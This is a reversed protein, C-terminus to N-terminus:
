RRLKLRWGTKEERLHMDSQALNSALQEVSGAYAMSVIAGKSTLVHIDLSKVFTAAELRELMSLWEGMREFDAAVTFTVQDGIEVVATQKWEKAFASLIDEVAEGALAAHEKRRGKYNRVFLRSGAASYQYVFVDLRGAQTALAHAIVVADVNYKKALAAMSQTDSLLVDEVDLMAQDRSDGTPMVMPAPVNSLDKGAWSESWWHNEWLRYGTVDELVPLLLMPRAQTESFPINLNRLLDLVTEPEFVVSLSALYRRSSTKEDEVRFRRVYTEINEPGVAPLVPWDESRTLRRLLIQFARSQGDRLAIGRAELASSARADVSVNKVEFLNGAAAPLASFLLPAATLCVLCLRFFVGSKMLFKLMQDGFTSKGTFCSSFFPKKMDIVTM